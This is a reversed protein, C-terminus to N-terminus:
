RDEPSASVQIIRGDSFRVTREAYSAVHLEHTIIIVTMGSRHLECFLDMIQATTETDLAGTPEDALLIMPETVLARAIAVRQQQGGSLQQPLHEAREALGVRALAALARKKRETRGLRRYILPVEVNGLATHRPLLNFNQFVFGIKRNRLYAQERADLSDVARGDLLYHGATPRDLLGLINMLTSKGSGSSGMIALMEGAFITLSVSRLAQVQLTGAQYVKDLAELQILPAAAAVAPASSLM